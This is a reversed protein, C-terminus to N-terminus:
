IAKKAATAPVLHIWLQTFRVKYEMVDPPDYGGRVAIATAFRKPPLGGHDLFSLADAKNVPYLFVNYLYSDFVTLNYNLDATNASDAGDSAQNLNTLNSAGGQM